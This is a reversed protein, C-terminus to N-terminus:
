NTLRLKVPYSLILDALFNRNDVQGDVWKSPYLYVLIEFKRRSFMERDQTDNVHAIQIKLKAGLELFEQGICSSRRSARSHSTERLKGEEDEM